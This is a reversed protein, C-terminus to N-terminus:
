LHTTDPVAPLRPFTQAPVIHIPTASAPDTHMKVPKSYLNGPADPWQQGEGRDGAPLKVTKGDGRHFTEYVHLLGQVWYDGAPIGALSNKPYGLTTDSVFAETAPALGDVDM